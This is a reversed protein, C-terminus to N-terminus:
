HQTPLHYVILCYRTYREPSMFAKLTITDQGYSTNNDDGHSQQRDHNVVARYMIDNYTGVSPGARHRALIFHTRTVFLRRGSCHFYYLVTMSLPLILSSSFGVDGGDM